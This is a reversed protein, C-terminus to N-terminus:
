ERQRHTHTHKEERENRKECQRKLFLGLQRLLMKALIHLLQLPKRERGREEERKREREEVCM